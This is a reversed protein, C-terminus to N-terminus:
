SRGSQRRIKALRQELLQRPRCAVKAATVAEVTFFYTDTASLGVFNDRFLFSLVQRRGDNGIRTAMLTGDVINFVQDAAAGAQFLTEGAKLARVPADEFVDLFIDGTTADFLM